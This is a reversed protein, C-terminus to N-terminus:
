SAKPAEQPPLVEGMDDFIRHVDPKFVDGVLIDVLRSHHEPHERLFDGFSFDPAYFAYVLRRFNEVGASYGHYWAALREVSVDDERLAADIADFAVAAPDAGPKAGVFGVGVRDAWLRLQDIAGARFTDAAALLPRHGLRSLHRALKGISTTKGVGNVGVVLLVTPPTEAMNLAGSDQGALLIDRVAGEVTDLFQQETRIKGLRSLEEVRELLQMTADVGFDSGLLIEEIRELSGEDVGGRVLVGVDTFAIDKIRSWLSPKEKGHKLLRGM